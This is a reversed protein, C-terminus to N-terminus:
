ASRAAPPDAATAFYAEFNIAIVQSLHHKTPTSKVYLKSGLLQNTRMFLDRIIQRKQAATM